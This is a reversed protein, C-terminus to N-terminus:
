RRAARQRPSVLGPCRPLCEGGRLQGTGRPRIREVVVLVPHLSRAAPRRDAHAPELDREGEPGARPRMRDRDLNILLADELVMAAHLVGRLPPLDRDIAALVAAVDAEKRCMPPTSSSGPASSSWSPWRRAPRPRRPAEGGWWSSTGAGREAMWRAVALGFGGLGGTILYSADARFTVPEDEAPVTAVPQDGFTLVVKGIHKGQQMFRFADVAETIPWARHPLPELEGDGVRRVIDRLMSGLLAPRERIVRDLDIAFFSLNKRFPQLGLRANQYIDRKGIELFRGYDALIALGAPDGRRASLQPDCGRRPRRHARLVQDAFDLSRSDM